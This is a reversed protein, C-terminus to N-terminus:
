DRDINSLQYLAKTFISPSKGTLHLSLNTFRFVLSFSLSKKKITYSRYTSPDYRINRGINNEVSKNRMFPLTSLSREYDVLVNEAIIKPWM